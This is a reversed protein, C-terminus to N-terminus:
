QLLSTYFTGRVRIGDLSCEDAGQNTYNAALVKPSLGCYFRGWFLSAQRDCVVVANM